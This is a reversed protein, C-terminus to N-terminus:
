EASVPQQQETVPIVREGSAIFGQGFTVLRVQEPLGSVWIGDVESRIIKIPLFQARDEADVAMVGLRGDDHLTLLSPSLYHGGAEGTPIEIVASMGSILQYDPNPVEVEIRYSRTGSDALRSVFTLVGDVQKGTILEVRVAQGVALRAVSQQPVQATAKLRSDDVVTVVSDSRDLLTGVEVMRAEVVGDFPARLSTREIDLKIAALEAEAVALNARAARLNSESQLQKKFLKKAAELDSQSQALQAEARALRVARDDMSLHVLEDGTSVRAGIQADVKDVTGATEARLDVKRWPELQGQVTVMQTVDGRRYEKVRVKMLEQREVQESTAQTADSRILYGSGVWLVLAAAMALAVGYSLKM